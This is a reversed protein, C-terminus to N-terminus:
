LHDSKDLFSILTEELREDPVKDKGLHGESFKNGAISEAHPSEEPEIILTFHHFFAELGTDDSGLSVVVFGCLSKAKLRVQSRSGRIKWLYPWGRWECSDVRFTSSRM